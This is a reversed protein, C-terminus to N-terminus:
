SLLSPERSIYWFIDCFCFEGRRKWSHVGCWCICQLSNINPAVPPRTFNKDASCIKLFCWLNRLLKCLVNTIILEIKVYQTLNVCITYVKCMSHLSTSMRHNKKYNKVNRLMWAIKNGNKWNVCKQTFNQGWNPLLKSLYLTQRHPPNQSSCAAVLHGIGYVASM